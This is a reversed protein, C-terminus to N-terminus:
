HTPPTYQWLNVKDRFYLRGANDMACLGVNDRLKTIQKSAPDLQFFQNSASGYIMGSPHVVFQANRWIHNAHYDGTFLEKRDLVEKKAPDFIFLTGNALGWVHKDPGVFLGTIATAGPVPVTEYTKSDTAPDVIFLKAESASPKIGLGGSISSGGVVVGGAYVLSVISQDPVVDHHTALTQKDIDYISLVGGLMGYEPVTGIYVKKLEPVGLMAMPRSQKEPGLNGFERPNKDKVDWPKSTDYLWLRAGPYIGFYITQDVVTIDEAQGIGGFQESTGTQPDFAAAGGSLYGNVWMRGDPGNEIQNIPTPEKPLKFKTTKSKGTTPNYRTVDGYSGFAILTKGPYDPENRDEWSFGIVPGCHLVAKPPDKPKAPDFVMVKPSSSYYVRGDTPDSIMRQQGTVSPLITKVENNKRLNIVLSQQGSALMAYLHDGLM